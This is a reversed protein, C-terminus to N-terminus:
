GPNSEQFYFLVRLKLHSSNGMCPGRIKLVLLFEAPSEHYLCRCIRASLAILACLSRMLCCGPIMLLTYQQGAFGWPRGGQPAIEIFLLSIKGWVRPCCIDPLRSLHGQTGMPAGWPFSSISAYDLFVQYNQSM